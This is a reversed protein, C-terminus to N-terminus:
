GGARRCRTHTPSGFVRAPLDLRPRVEGGASQKIIANLGTLDFLEGVHVRYSSEATDQGLKVGGQRLIKQLFARSYQPYARALVVDLREGNLENTIKLRNEM